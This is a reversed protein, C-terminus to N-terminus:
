KPPDSNKKTAVIILAVLGSILAFTILVGAIVNLSILNIAWPVAGAMFAPFFFFLIGIIVYVYGPMHSSYPNSYIPNESRCYDFELNNDISPNENANTWGTDTRKFAHSSHILYGDSANVNIQFNEFSKWLKAPTLVYNIRYCSPNYESHLSPTLSYSVDMSYEKGGGGLDISYILFALFQDYNQYTDTTLDTLNIVNKRFQARNSTLRFTLWDADLSRKTTVASFLETWTSESEYSIPDIKYEKSRELEDETFWTASTVLRNTYFDVTATKEDSVFAYRDFVEDMDKLNNHVTGSEGQYIIGDSKETKFYLDAFRIDPSQIDIADTLDLSCRYHYFTDDKGPISSLEENYHDIMQNLTEDGLQYELERDDNRSEELYIIKTIPKKEPEHGYDGFSITPLAEEKHLDKYSALLPFAFTSTRASSGEDVLHYSATITANGRNAMAQVSGLDITLNEGKVAISSDQVPAITTATGGPYIIEASNAKVAQPRALFVFSFSAGLVLFSSILGITAIKKTKM